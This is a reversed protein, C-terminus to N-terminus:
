GVEEETQASATGKVLVLINFDVEGALTEPSALGFTLAKATYTVKGVAVGSLPFRLTMGDAGLTPGGLQRGYWTIGTIATAPVPLQATNTDEFTLEETRTLTVEDGPTVTGASSTVAVDIGASRFVLFWATDGPLFSTKGENLGAPRDDVEASLHADSSVGAGFQVRVTANSM